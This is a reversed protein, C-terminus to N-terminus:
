LSNKLYNYWLMKWIVANFTSIHTLPVVYFVCSLFYLFYFYSLWISIHYLTVFSLTISNGLPFSCPSSIPLTSSWKRVFHNPISTMFPNEQKNVIKTWKSNFYCFRLPLFLFFVAFSINRISDKQQKKYYTTKKKKCM